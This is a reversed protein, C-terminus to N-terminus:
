QKPKSENWSQDKARPEKESMPGSPPAVFPGGAMPAPKVKLGTHQVVDEEPYEDEIGALPFDKRLPYYKFEDWMLIRKMNPHNEYVIGFMDYTEREHWDAAAFVSTISPLKPSVNCECDVVIRCYERITMNLFHYVGTFRPSAAEGNDIATVDMLMAYGEADRLHTAVAILDSPACKFSPCDSAPTKTLTEFHSTLNM